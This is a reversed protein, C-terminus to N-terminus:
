RLEQRTAPSPPAARREERQDDTFRSVMYLVHDIDFASTGSVSAASARAKRRHTAQHQANKQAAEEVAAEPDEARAMRMLKEM